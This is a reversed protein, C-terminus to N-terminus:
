SDTYNETAAMIDNRVQESLPEPSLIKAHLAYQLAWRRMAAFNVCVRVSVEEDTEDFFTVGGLFFLGKPTKIVAIKNDKVPILYAGKRDYYPVPAKEGFVKHM